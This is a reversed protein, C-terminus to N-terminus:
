VFLEKGVLAELIILIVGTTFVVELMVIFDLNEVLEVEEEVEMHLLKLHAILDLVVM